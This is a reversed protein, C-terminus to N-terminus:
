AILEDVSVSFGPLVVKTSVTDGLTKLDQQHSTIVLVWQSEPFVLLV